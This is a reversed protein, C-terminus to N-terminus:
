PIRASGAAKTGRSRRQASEQITGRGRCGPGGSVASFTENLIVVEGRVELVSPPSPTVLKLPVGGVIRANSSIDDGVTGNGRTVGRVLEGHEYILAMAVGDIKYEVSYELKERGFAKQLGADWDVLEQEQFVNDISLMPVRHQVQQFGAIPEGGVKQTPSSASQFKPHALELAQLEAMMRDYERDSIEPSAEVYYLRNHRELETRLSEIQQKISDTM